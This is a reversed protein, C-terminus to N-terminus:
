SLSMIMSVLISFFSVAVWAVIAGFFLVVAPHVLMALTARRDYVVQEKQMALRRM